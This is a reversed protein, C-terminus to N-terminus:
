SHTFSKFLATLLRPDFHGEMRDKIQTLADVIKIPKRYTRESTMSDFVDLIRSVRGNVSIKENALGFPYGSGDFNEHHEVVMRLVNESYCKMDNLIKRGSSPHKRIISWDEETLETKTKIEESFNKKGIDSFLGGLFIDRLDKDSLDLVKGFYLSYMGINTCHTEVLSDKFTVGALAPFPINEYQFVPCLIDPLEDMARLMRPSTDFELYDSLIRRIVPYTRRVVELPNLKEKDLNERLRVLACQRYYRILDNEHIFFDQRDGEKMIKELRTYDEPTYQAFTLYSTKSGDVSKYYVTFGEVWEKDLFAHTIPKFYQEISDSM